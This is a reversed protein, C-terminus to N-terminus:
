SERRSEALYVLAKNLLDPSDKFKGLGLNCWNCLLGRIKGTSHCHDVKFRGKQGRSDTDGCIACRGGQAAFLRDYEGVDLGYARQLILDKFRDGQRAKYAQQLECLKGRNAARWVKYREYHCPKCYTQLGNGTGSHTNFESPAKFVKCNPCTKGNTADIRKM